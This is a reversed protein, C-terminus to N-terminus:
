EAGTNKVLAQFDLRPILKLIQSFMSSSAKLDPGEYPRSDM